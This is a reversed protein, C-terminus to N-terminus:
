FGPKKFFGPKQTAMVPRRHASRLMLGMFILVALVNFLGAWQRVPQSAILDAAVRVLLSIQLLVLHFYFVPRYTLDIPLVSPIIILAHGFIMSFVFGLLISHLLADYIFGATSTGGFAIWLSGGIVLWVYGPLLCAAIYRTLGTKRITHRAVDYRLLWAGLLALGVGSVRLGLDFDILSLTLGILLVAVVSKFLTRSLPKLMLVRSLELREGAITLILFIIWWPAAHYIPQGFLWLGNGILWALAGLGMALIDITSRKRYIYVFVIALGLAGLVLLTKGMEFPLGSVLLLTGLITLLPVVYAARKQLAVARELSVLAGFVGSIMLAGHLGVIPVPLQPLRWGIRALAAWLAALLTLIVAAVISLRIANQRSMGPVGSAHYCARPRAPIICIM